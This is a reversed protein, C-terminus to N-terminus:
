FDNMENDGNQLDKKDRNQKYNNIKWTLGIYAVRSDMHRSSTTYFGDGWTEGNYRRSKFIDSLRFNLTLKNKFFDKRMAFDLTFMSKRKGQAMYQPASYNGMLQLTFDKIPTFMSNGKATWSYNYSKDINYKDSGGYSTSFYSFNANLKWWKAIDAAAILETGYSQWTQLNLYTSMKVRENIMSDIQTIMDATHKYFVNVTFSSKKWFKSYGLELSNIYQPKLNPNGKSLNLSDEYDIFPNMQRFGPRDVRRSYSLAMEQEKGLDQVFHLSPYLSFYDKNFKDSTLTVKSDTYVQEARLGLQYKFAKIQGSFIGYVAHIQEDYTYHNLTANVWESSTYLWNNVENDSVQSRVSSKFGTELRGWEALPQVYNAQIIYSTGKNKSYSQQFAPQGSPEFVSDLPQQTIDDNNNRINDSYIFDATLERGKQEYTRKYSVNYDSSYMHRHGETSQDFARILSYNDDLYKNLSVDNGYGLMDRRQWSVTVNNRSDFSYDLGLNYNQMQMRNHDKEKQNLYNTLNNYTSKRNSTSWSDFNNYRVDINAFLNLRNKRYNLNLTANYKDKTGANVTILGNIGLNVKKKLVINIIGSTGEPDYKVSPNTVLEVSEISSAPIQNLIDSSSLGSLSSPKGDILITVNTNGRLAVNGDADVSVAPINQMVDVASGGMAVLNKDVNIVKKDLNNVMLEKQATVEVTKLNKASVALQITGLDVTTKKQNILVDRIRKTNYGIFQIKVMYKGFPLQDITFKGNPNSIGGNIMTSDKARLIVVNGYEIPQSTTADILTGTIKGPGGQSPLPAKKTSTQASLFFSFPFILLLLFTLKRVFSSFLM